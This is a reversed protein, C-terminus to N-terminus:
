KITIYMGVSVGLALASSLLATLEFPQLVVVPAQLRQWLTQPPQPPEIAPQIVPEEVEEPQVPDAAEAPLRADLASLVKEEFSGVLRRRKWPELGLQVVLFLLVNFAMLLVTGWTSVQRIKDSWIQEERYRLSILQHLQAQCADYHAESELSAAKTQQVRQEVLHDERFLQTFRELDQSSWDHKRQLLENVERQSASRETVARQYAANASERLERSKKANEEAEAIRRKLKEIESYGSVDNVRQLVAMIKLQTRDLFATTKKGLPSRRAEKESPLQHKPAANTIYRCRAPRLFGGPVRLLRFM